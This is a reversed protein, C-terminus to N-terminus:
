NEMVVDYIHRSPNAFYVGRIRVDSKDCIHMETHIHKMSAHQHKWTLLECSDEEVVESFCMRANFRLWM